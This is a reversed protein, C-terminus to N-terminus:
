FVLLLTTNTLNVVLINSFPKKKLYLQSCSYIKEHKRSLLVTPQVLLLLSSALVSKYSIYHNLCWQPQYIVRCAHFSFHFFPFLFNYFPPLTCQIGAVGTKTLRLFIHMYAYICSSLFKYGM